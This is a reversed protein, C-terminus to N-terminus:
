VDLTRAQGRGLTQLMDPGLSEHSVQLMLRTTIHLKWLHEDKRQEIVKPGSLSCRARCVLGPKYSPATKAVVVVVVVVVVERSHDGEQPGMHRQLTHKPGVFVKFPVGSLALCMGYLIM